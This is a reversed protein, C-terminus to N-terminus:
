SITAKETLMTDMVNAIHGGRYGEAIRVRAELGPADAAVDAGLNMVM